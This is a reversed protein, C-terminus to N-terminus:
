GAYPDFKFSEMNKADQIHEGMCIDMVPISNMWVFIGLGIDHTVGWRTCTRQLVHKQLLPQISQLAALSFGGWGMWPVRHVCPVTCDGQAKQFLGFNVRKTSKEQKEDLFLQDLGSSSVLAYPKDSASYPALMSELYHLRTFYDDDSFIFWSPFPEGRNAHDNALALYFLM